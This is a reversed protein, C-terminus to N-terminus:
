SPVDIGRRKLAARCYKLLDLDRIEQVLEAPGPAELSRTVEDVLLEAFKARARHLTVRIQGATFPKGLQVSLQEAIQPSAAEPNQVHFILVAFFTPHGEALAAWTQTLLEERWSELFEPAEAASSTTPGAVDPPLPRPRAREARYYDDVLHILATKLYNRFRGRQPDARRFDGRLFRVAFEQLLEEAAGADHLAGLLYHYVAGLYRQMLLRQAATAADDAGAHAQQLLTWLTSIRSLHQNLSDADM